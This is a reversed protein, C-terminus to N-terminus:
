LVETPHKTSLDIDPGPKSTDTMTMKVTGDGARNVMRLIRRSLTSVGIAILFMSVFGLLTPWGISPRRIRTYIYMAIFAQSCLLGLLIAYSPVTLQDQPDLKVSMVRRIMVLMMVLVYAIM